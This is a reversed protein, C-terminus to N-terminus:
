LAPLHFNDRASGAMTPNPSAATVKIGAGKMREGAPKMAQKAKVVIPTSRVTLELQVTQQSTPPFYEPVSDAAMFVRPANPENALEISKGRMMPQVPFM